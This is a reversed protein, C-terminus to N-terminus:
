PFTLTGVDTVEDSTLQIYLTQGTEPDNVAASSMPEWVILGYTGPEVNTFLFQGTARDIMARPATKEDLELLYVEPNDTPMARALFLEGLLISQETLVLSGRLNATGSAPRADWDPLGPGPTPLPSEATTGAPTELPSSTVEGGVGTGPAATGTGGCAAVLFSALLLMALWLGPKGPSHVMRKM